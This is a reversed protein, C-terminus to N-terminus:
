HKVIIRIGEDIEHVMSITIRSILSSMRELEEDSDVIFIPAGGSVKRSKGNKVVVALIVNNLSADSM